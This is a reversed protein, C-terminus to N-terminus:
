KILTMTKTIVRGGSELRYYYIGSPISSADWKVTYSGAPRVGNVLEAVKQGLINYVNLNVLGSQDLTYRITTEPNFPNPYNQSLSFSVPTDEVENGVTAGPVMTITFRNSGGTQQAKLKPASFHPVGRKQQSSVSFVYAEQARMDIQLDAQKDTLIFQWDDPIHVWEPWSLTYEGSVGKDNFNLIYTQIESPNLERADQVLLREEEGDDQVFAIYPANNLPNIKSGDLADRDSKAHQSYYLKTSVDSYGTTHLELNIRRWSQLEKSFIAVDETSDTKASVPITLVSAPTDGGTELFFGQWTSIELGEGINFTEYSNLSDNWVSIPSVLGGQIGTGGDVGNGTIMDLEINSDFPNGVLTFTSDLNVTIDVTPESGTIDLDLPLPSSGATTNDFFYVIFGLGNGWPTNVDAPIHWGSSTGNQNSGDNYYINPASGAHSGGTIGQIATDDSIDAVTGGDIPFSLMRWGADGTITVKETFIFGSTNFPIVSASQDGIGDNTTWNSADGIRSLFASKNLAMRLGTYEGVDADADVTGLNVAETGETLGTGYLSGVTSGDDFDDNSIAALFTTPTSHDTGVFAYLAEDTGTIDFGLDPETLVGVSATRTLTNTNNFTVVTGASITTLRTWKLVGEGSTFATSASDWENDTFYITGAALDNLVVIAFDDDGDANFGIFAIDGASQSALPNVFLFVLCFSCLAKKKM